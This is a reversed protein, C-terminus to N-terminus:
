DHDFEGGTDRLFGHHGTANTFYGVIQGAANIGFAETVISGPVHIPIFSGGTDLFGHIGTADGFVGAIQGADNIGRAATFTSGPVDITTFIFSAGAPSLWSGGLLLSLLLGHVYRRM